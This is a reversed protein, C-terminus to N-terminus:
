KGGVSLEEISKSTLMSCLIKGNKTGLKEAAETFM